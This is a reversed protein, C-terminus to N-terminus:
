DNQKEEEKNTSVWEIEEDVIEEKSYESEEELGWEIASAAKAKTYCGRKQCIAAFAL